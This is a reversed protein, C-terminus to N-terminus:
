GKKPNSYKCMAELTSIDREINFKTMAEPAIPRIKLYEVKKSGPIETYNIKCMAEPAPEEMTAKEREAIGAEDNKVMAEPTSPHFTCWEADDSHFRGVM